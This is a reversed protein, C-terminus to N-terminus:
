GLDSEGYIRAPSGTLHRAAQRATMVAGEVWGLDMGGRVWDGCLLLNALGSEDFRLRKDVSGAPSFVYRESPKANLRVYLSRQRAEEDQGRWGPLIDELHAGLWADAQAGPDQRDDRVPGCLFHLGEFRNGTESALQHDMASWSSLPLVHGTSIAPGHAWGLAEHSKKTWLQVSLTPCSAAGELCAQWAPFRATLAGAIQGLAPAPIALLALDFDRGAKLVIEPDGPAADEPDEFDEPLRDQGPGPGIQGALPRHPWARGGGPLTILPEYAGPGAHIQAQRRILIEELRTGSDDPRLARVDSFFEFRVGRAKLVEYLPLVLIEGIGAAFHYFFHGSYSFLMRLYGRLATGAAMDPRSPDGDVYSFAYHYGLEVFPSRLVFGPAGHRRLWDKTEEGNISDFGRTFLRDSVLGRLIVMGLLGATALDSASLGQEADGVVGTLGKLGAGAASEHGRAEALAGLAASVEDIRGLIQARAEPSLGEQEEARCAALIEDTDAYEPGGSKLFSFGAALGSIQRAFQMLRAAVHSLSLDPVDIGPAGPTVPLRVSLKRWRQGVPAFRAEDFLVAGDLPLFAEEFPRTHELGLANWDAYLARIMEFTNHYWGGLVHLGHEENRYDMGPDTNRSSACKGGLRWGIQYLTIDYHDEPDARKIEYAAALASIGGGLIALRTTM